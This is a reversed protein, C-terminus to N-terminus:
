GGSRSWELTTQFDFQKSIQEGRSPQLVRAASPVAPASPAAPPKTRTRRHAGGSGGCRRSALGRRGRRRRGTWLSSPRRRCLCRWGSRRLVHCDLCDLRRPRALPPNTTGTSGVSGETGAGRARWVFGPAVRLPTPVAADDQPSSRPPSFHQQGPLLLGPRGRGLFGSISNIPDGNSGANPLWGVWYFSWYFRGELTALNWTPNSSAFTCGDEMAERRSTSGWLEVVKPSSSAATILRAFSIFGSSFKM